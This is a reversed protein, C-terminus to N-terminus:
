IFGLKRTEKKLIDSFEKECSSLYFDEKTLIVENEKNMQTRLVAKGWTREFLNRVFRANSFEKSLVVEDAICEFYLKVAEEFGERYEFNKKVHLMFIEFLQEKTYNPFEIVYPMRSELGANAKMLANMEDTYGAMIVVLDNRHNEMEAILTDIAERGYDANSFSEGRYLAYAEDIFLVSGYADRCMAATKPATEGVYRGCFDRGSYEFFNGNRLIGKEKLIKGVVRAVTTKGTGPNGVFRMHICPAGLEKNKTSMEIQAIIEEVRKKISEMGVFDDLMEIGSKEGDSYSSVLTLVEDKKIVSDDIDNDINHLQKIYIMESIVKNVTNIGYFRGDKKEEAIRLEFIDWADDAMSFGFNKLTEKASLELENKTFPVFSVDKVFLVDSISRRISNLIEKEVFPVRFVIINEGSYDDIVSLFDRFAKETCKSMWESIDACVMKSDRKSYRKIHSLVPSFCEDPSNKQNPSLVKEEVIRGKECFKVLGLAELLDSFLELYTSLGNGDNVSFVYCRRLFTHVINYKLLRPAVKVCEYALKKFEEAGILADIKKLVASLKDSDSSDDTQTDVKKDVDEAQVKSNDIIFSKKEEKCDSVSLELVFKSSDVGYLESIAEIFEKKITEDSVSVDNIVLEFGVLSKDVVKVDYSGCLTSLINDVPLIEDNERSLIWSADFELVVRKKM